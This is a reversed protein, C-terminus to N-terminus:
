SVLNTMNHSIPTKSAVAQIVEPVKSRIVQGLLDRSAAAPDAAAVLASVVAVGDLAKKGPAVSQSLVSTTNSANIGGICVVPIAAYGADVLSSLIERVGSPGIISKTDKKSREIDLNAILWM